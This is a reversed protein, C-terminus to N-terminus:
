NEMVTFLPLFLDISIIIYSYPHYTNYWVNAFIYNKIFVFFMHLMYINNYLCQKMVYRIIFYIIYNFRKPALISVKVLVIAGKIAIIEYPAAFVDKLTITIYPM